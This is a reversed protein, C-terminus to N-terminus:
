GGKKAEEELLALLEVGRGHLELVKRLALEGARDLTPENQTCAISVHVDLAEGGFSQLARKYGISVKAQEGGEVLEHYEDFYSGIEAVIKGKRLLRATWANL